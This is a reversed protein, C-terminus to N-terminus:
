KRIFYSFITSVVCTIICAVATKWNKAPEEKILTIEEALAKVSDNFDQQTSIIGQLCQNQLEMNTSLKHVQEIHVKYDELRQEESKELKKELNDIQKQMRDLEKM